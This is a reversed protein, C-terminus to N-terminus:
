WNCRHPCRLALPVSYALFIRKSVRYSLQGQEIATSTVGTISAILSTFVILISHFVDSTDNIRVGLIARCNTAKVEMGNLVRRAEVWPEGSFLCEGSRFHKHSRGQKVETGVSPTEYTQGMM